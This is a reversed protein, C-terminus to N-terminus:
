LFRRALLFPAGIGVVGGLLASAVSGM